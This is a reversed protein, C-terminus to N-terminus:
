GDRGCMECKWWGVCVSVVWGLTVSMPPLFTYIFGEYVAVWMVLSVDSAATLVM